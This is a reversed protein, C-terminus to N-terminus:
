ACHKMAARVAFADLMVAVHVYPQAVAVARVAKAGDVFCRTTDAGTRRQTFKPQRSQLRDRVTPGLVHRAMYIRGVRHRRWGLMRVM